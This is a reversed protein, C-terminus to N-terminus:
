DFKHNIETKNQLSEEKRKSLQTSHLPKVGTKHKDDSMRTNITNRQTEQMWKPHDKNSTDLKDTDTRTNQHLKHDQQKIEPQEQNQWPRIINWM